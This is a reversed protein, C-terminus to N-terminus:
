FAISFGFLAGGDTGTVGDAPEASATGAAAPRPRGGSGQQQKRKSGAGGPPQGGRGGGGRKGPQSGPAPQGTAVSGAVRMPSLAGAGRHPTAAMSEIAREQPTM